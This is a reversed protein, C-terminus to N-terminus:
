TGLGIGTEENNGEVIVLKEGFLNRLNEINQLEYDEGDVEVSFALNISKFFSNLQQRNKEFSILEKATKNQVYIIANGDHIAIGKAERMASLLSIHNKTRLYTLLNGFVNKYQEEDCIQEDIKNNQVEKFVELDNKVEQLLPKIDKKESEAM